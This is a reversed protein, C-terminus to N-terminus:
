IMDEFVELSFCKWKYPFSNPILKIRKLIILIADEAKTFDDRSSQSFDSGWPDFLARLQNEDLKERVMSQLYPKETSIFNIEDEITIFHRKFKLDTPLRDSTSIVDRIWERVAKLSENHNFTTSVIWEDLKEYVHNARTWIDKLGMVAWNRLSCIRM